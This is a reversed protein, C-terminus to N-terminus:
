KQQKQFEELKEPAHKQLFNVCERYAHDPLAFQQNVCYKFVDKYLFATFVNLKSENNKVWRHRPHLLDSRRELAFTSLIKDKISSHFKEKSDINSKVLEEAKRCVCDAILKEYSKHFREPHEFPVPAIRITIKETSLNKRKKDYDDWIMNVFTEILQSAVFESKDLPAEGFETTVTEDTSLSNEEVQPKKFALSKPEEVNVVLEKTFGPSWESIDKVQQLREPTKITPDSVDFIPAAVDSLSFDLGDNFFSDNANPSKPLGGSKNFNKPSSLSKRNELSNRPSRPSVAAFRSLPPLSPRNELSLKPQESTIDKDVDDTHLYTLDKISGTEVMEWSKRRRQLTPDVAANSTSNNFVSSMESVDLDDNQNKSTGDSIPYSNSMSMSRATSPLEEPISDSKSSKEKEPLQASDEPTPTSEDAITSGVSTSTETQTSSTSEYESRGSQQVAEPIEEVISEEESNELSKPVVVNSSVSDSLVDKASSELSEKRETITEPLNIETTLGAIDSPTLVNELLTLEGDTTKVQGHNQGSIVESLVHPPSPVPSDNKLNSLSVNSPIVSDGTTPIHEPDSDIAQKAVLNEFNKSIQEANEDENKESPLSQLDSGFSASKSSLVSIVDEAQKTPTLVQDSEGKQADLDELRDTLTSIEDETDKLDTKVEDFEAISPIGRSTRGASENENVTPVNNVNEKPISETEKETDNQVIKHADGAEPIIEEEHEREVIQETKNEEHLKSFDMMPIVIKSPLQSGGSSKGSKEESIMKDLGTNVNEKQTKESSSRLQDESSSSKLVQNMNTKGSKLLPIKSKSITRTGSSKGKSSVESEIIEKGSLVNQNKTKGFQIVDSLRSSSMRGSDSQLMEAETSTSMPVASTMKNSVALRIVKKMAKAEMMETRIKESDIRKVTEVVKKAKELRENLNHMSEREFENVDLQGFMSYRISQRERRQDNKKVKLLIIRVEDQLEKIKKCVLTINKYTYQRQDNKKVKLLIIRVEDQLEKIKKCVLTINKYTYEKLILKVQEKSEAEMMPLKKLKSDILQITELMGSKKAYDRERMCYKKQASVNIKLAECFNGFLKEPTLSTVYGKKENSVSKSSSAFSEVVKVKGELSKANEHDAKEKIKETVKSKSSGDVFIQEESQIVGKHISKDVLNCIDNLKQSTEKILTGFNDMTGIIQSGNKGAEVDLLSKSSRSDVDVVPTEESGTFQKDADNGVFKFPSKSGFISKDFEPLKEKLNGHSEGGFEGGDTTFGKEFSINEQHVFKTRPTLIITEAVQSKQLIRSSSNSLNMVSLDALRADIKELEKRTKERIKAIAPSEYEYLDGETAQMITSPTYFQEDSGDSLENNRLNTMPTKYLHQPTLNNIPSFVQSCGDIQEFENAFKSSGGSRISPIAYGDEDKRIPANLAPTSASIPSKSRNLPEWEDLRRQASSNLLQDLKKDHTKQSVPNKTGFKVPTKDVEDDRAADHGCGSNRCTVQHLTLGKKAVDTAVFRPVTFSKRDNSVTRRQRLSLSRKSKKPTETQEVDFTKGFLSRQCHHNSPLPGRFNYSMVRREADPTLRVNIDNKTSAKGPTISRARKPKTAVRQARSGASSNSSISHLRKRNPLNKTEVEETSTISSCEEPFPEQSSKATTETSLLPISQMYRQQKGRNVPFVFNDGDIKQQLPDVNESASDESFASLEAVEAHIKAREELDDTQYLKKKLENLKEIKSQGKLNDSSM